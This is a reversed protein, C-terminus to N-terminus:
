NRPEWVFDGTMDIYGFRGTAYDGEAVHALSGTYNFAWQYRNPSMAAGSTDIYSRLGTEYDGNRVVAWGESFDYAYDYQLPIALQGNLGIYGWREGRMVPCLGDHFTGTQQWIPRAVIRGDRNIFGYQDDLRFWALGYEDFSGISAYVPEIIATGETDIYGYLRDRWGAGVGIRALGDHFDSASDYPGGPLYEGNLRQYRYGNDSKVRAIGESYGSIETPTAFERTEEHDILIWYTESNLVISVVAFGSQFSGGSLYPFSRPIPDGPHFLARHERDPGIWWAGEGAYSIYGFEPALIERGATDIMGWKGDRWSGVRVQAYDDRFDTVGDWQFEGVPVGDPGVFGWKGALTATGYGNVFHYARDFVFDTIQEGAANLFARKGDRYDGQIVVTFGNSYPYAFDYQAPVVVDGASDIFGWLGGSLVRYLDPVEEACASWSLLFFLVPLLFVNKM